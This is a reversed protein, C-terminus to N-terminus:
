RVVIYNFLETLDAGVAPDSTLLGFDAYQRATGSHYNGTGIHAYRRLGDYDERLIYILKTHTKLGVIGYTIHIGAEELRNAWRINASEDFRAKVEVVVTVQKGNRSADLLHEIIKSDM